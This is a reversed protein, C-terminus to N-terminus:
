ISKIWEGIFKSLIEYGSANPHVKDTTYVSADFLANFEESETLNNDGLINRENDFTPNNLLKIM